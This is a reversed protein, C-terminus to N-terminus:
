SWNQCMNPDRGRGKCHVEAHTHQTLMYFLSHCPLYFQGWGRGMGMFNEGDEDWGWSIKAMGWGMGVFFEGNGIEWGWERTFKGTGM